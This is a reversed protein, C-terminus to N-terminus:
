DTERLPGNAHGGRSLRVQIDDGWSDADQAAEAHTYFQGSIIWRKSFHSYYYVTWITNCFLESRTIKTEM